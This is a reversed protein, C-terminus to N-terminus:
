EPLKVHRDENKALTIKDDIKLIDIDIVDKKINKRYEEGLMDTMKDFIKAPLFIEINGMSFNPFKGDKPRLSTSFIMGFNGPGEILIRRYQDIDIGFSDGSDTLEITIDDPIESKETIEKSVNDLYEKIAKEITESIKGYVRGDTESQIIYKRLEKMVDKSIRVPETDM